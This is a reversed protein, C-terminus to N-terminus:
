IIDLSGFINNTTKEPTKNKKEGLDLIYLPIYSDSRYSLNNNTYYFDTNFEIEKYRSIRLNFQNSQVFKERSKVLIFGSPKGTIFLSVSISRWSIYM